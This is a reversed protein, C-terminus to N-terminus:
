WITVYYALARASKVLQRCANCFVAREALVGVSLRLVYM